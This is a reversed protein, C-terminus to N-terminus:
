TSTSWRLGGAIVTKLALLGRLGFHDLAQRNAPALRRHDSRSAHPERYRPLSAPGHCPGFRGDGSCPAGAGFQVSGRGALPCATLRVQPPSAPVRSQRNNGIDLRGGLRPLGLPAGEPHWRRNPNGRRDMDGGLRGCLRHQLRHLQQAEEDQGTSEGRGSRDRCAPEPQRVTQGSPAARAYRCARAIGLRGAIRVSGGRGSARHDM